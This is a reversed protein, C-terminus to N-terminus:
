KNNTLSDKLRKLLILDEKLYDSPSKTYDYDLNNSYAVIRPYIFVDSLMELTLKRENLIEYEEELTSIIDLANELCILSFEYILDKNVNRIFKPATYPLILNISPIINKKSDKNINLSDGGIFPYLLQETFWYKLKPIFYACDIDMGDMDMIEKGRGSLMGVVIKKINVDYKKFLPKLSKMRYGKNLLDDILIIDRNLSMIMKTQNDLNLYNPFENIKFNSLDKEFVKETHLSKTVTNPIIVRNLINGYPVCAYSGLKRVEFEKTPVSNIRCVKKMITEDLIKRHFSLVLNGPYFKTIVHQLRKRAKLIAKKVHINQKFPEKITTEVDLYLTCPRVMNVSFLRSKLNENELEKFGQLKLTKYISGTNKYEIRDHYICYSYDKEISTALTQTLLIQKLSEFYDNKKAYIGNICIIRGSYNNRIFESIEQNKFECFINSSPVYHYSSYGIIKNRDNLDKIVIIKAEKKQSLEDLNKLATKYDSHFSLALKEMISYTINEVIEIDLSITQIVSKFQPERRYLGREYIYKQALPDVLNSIDRNTDIYSRIQSSSIDEYEKELNLIISKNHLKSYKENFTVDTNSNLNRTFIVHPFSQIFSEKKYASANMLVDSGMVLFVEKTNFTNKLYKLDDDNAINITIDEPFLYIDLEDAISMNIINRRILNPQTRKSWSFEDVALYVEYGLDRIATTINKHGLSFPDFSGPFFAIKENREICIDGIFFTYDSIFKYINNLVHANTLFDLNNEKYYDMLTLIKKAMLSFVENKEDLSVNDFAFISGIVNFASQRVKQEYHVLGNLLISLLRKKRNLFDAKDMEYYLTSKTYKSLTIGVTTLLLIITQPNSNKIKEVLDDIIEDLDERQLYLLLKGLYRPIYKSFQQGEIELSRLLEIAVDNKQEFPLKPYLKLLAKGAHNRVNEINSVKLINCFHMATYLGNEKLHNFTYSLLMDIHIRKVTFSTSSKLNSLFITSINKINEDNFDQYLKKVDDKLNLKNVVRYKLYNESYYDSKIINKSFYDSFADLFIDDLKYNSIKNEIVELGSIRLNLDDNNIVKLVFDYIPNQDIQINVIPIYKIAELLTFKVETSLNSENDLYMFIVKLYDKISSKDCNSFFSSIMRSLSHRIWNRHLKIMKHDPFLFKNFYEKLITHSNPVQKALKVDSPVEKRYIEDFNAILYGILESSQRRIDEQPRSLLDYLFKLTIIKQKQTLYISNKEFVDLYLRLSNSDREIRAEELIKNLSHEDRLKHMLSINQKFSLYKLNKIVDPGKMLAYHEKTSTIIDDYNIEEDVCVKINLSKMFDEFDKLKKYVRQYRKKKKDDLNDLKDLIVNFSDDLSFFTMINNHNKVRFDAYILILSEIPLNDLELDWVSHNVAIHGMYVLNHKNFWYDSYYYHLYPVRRSENSKCGFKGIDHGIAAGSIRGLDVPISAKKLQRAIKLAIYNVGCIHELTNYGMIEQNLIMMEYIYENNFAKKFNLYEDKNELNDIEDDTLFEIPYKSFWTNDNSYKQYNCFFRLIELYLSSILDLNSNLDVEISNKFSKKLTFNYVYNLFNNPLDEKYFVKFFPKFNEYINKCSFNKKKLIDEFSYFMNLKQLTTLINKKPYEYKLELFNSIIERFDNFYHLSNKNM